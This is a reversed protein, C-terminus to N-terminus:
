FRNEVHRDSLLRTAITLNSIHEKLNRLSRSKWTAMNSRPKKRAYAKVISLEGVDTNLDFGTVVSSATKRLVSSCVVSSHVAACDRAEEANRSALPLPATSKIGVVGAHPHRSRRPVITVWPSLMDPPYPWPLAVSTGPVGAASTALVEAPAPLEPSCWSESDVNVTLNLTNGVAAPLRGGM